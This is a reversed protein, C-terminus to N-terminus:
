LEVYLKERWGYGAMEEEERKGEGRKMELGEKREGEKHKKIEGRERKVSEYGSLRFYKSILICIKVLNRM